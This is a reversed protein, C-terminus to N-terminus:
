PIGGCGSIAGGGRGDPGTGCRADKIVMGLTTVDGGGLGGEDGGVPGVRAGGSGGGFETGKGGDEVLKGDEGSTSSIIPKACRKEVLSLPRRLPTASFAGLGGETEGGSSGGM